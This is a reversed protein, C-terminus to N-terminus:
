RDKDTAQMPTRQLRRLSNHRLMLRVWREVLVSLESWGGPTEPMMSSVADLAQRLDGRDPTQELLYRYIRAAEEYKGQGTYVRAMTETYFTRDADMEM